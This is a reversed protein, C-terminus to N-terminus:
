LLSKIGIACGGVLAVVIIGGIIVGTYDTEAPKVDGKTADGVPKAEVVAPKELAPDLSKPGQTIAADVNVFGESPADKATQADMAKVEWISGLCRWKDPEKYIPSETNPACGGCVTLRQKTDINEYVVSGGVMM